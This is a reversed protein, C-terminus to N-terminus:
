DSLQSEKIVGHVAAWKDKPNGPLFPNSNGERPCRKSEPNSGVDEANCTSEKSDSGGPVSHELNLNTKQFHRFEKKKKKLIKLGCNTADTSAFGVYIIPQSFGVTLNNWMLWGEISPSKHETAENSM